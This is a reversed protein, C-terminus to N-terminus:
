PNSNLHETIALRLPALQESLIGWVLELDLGLYEHALQNRFGAIRRWRILPHTAELREIGYDKCAQGIIELNRLIADRLLRSEMFDHKDSLALQSAIFDACDLAHTLFVSRESTM